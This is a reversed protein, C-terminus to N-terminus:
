GDLEGYKRKYEKLENDLKAYDGKISDLKGNCISRDSLLGNIYANKDNIIDIALCTIFLLILCLVILTIIIFRTREEKM